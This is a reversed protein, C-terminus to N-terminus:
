LLEHPLESAPPLVDATRGYSSGFKEKFHEAVTVTEYKPSEGASLCTPICKVVHSPNGHFFFPISYREKGSLNIVRHLTSRYKDNTWRSIMDGLNIVFAGEIPKADIWEDTSPHRVQLGGCDDQLLITLGGFDTHAGAGKEGPKADPPYHLLRLRAFAEHCFADFHCEDLGLSLALGKMLSTALHLMRAYYDEMAARFEPLGSPWQNPGRFIGDEPTERGMYFGEKVDAPAGAELTQARLPEFGHKVSSQSLNLARKESMPLDFFTRTQMLLNEVVSAPIGHNVAYFFGHTSCAQRIAVAISKRDASGNILTSVDIIPLHHCTAATSRDDSAGVAGDRIDIPKKM